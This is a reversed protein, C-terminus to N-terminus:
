TKIKPFIEDPKVDKPILLYEANMLNLPKKGNSDLIMYEFEKLIKFIINKKYGLNKIHTPHYSLFILPKSKRITKRAGKLMEIEAGEIDEVYDALKRMDGSHNLTYRYAYETVIQQNLITAGMEKLRSDVLAKRDKIQQHIEFGSNLDEQEAVKFRMVMENESPVGYMAFGTSDPGRHKLSQLMSTMEKGIGGPNGRHIIGAIGCM